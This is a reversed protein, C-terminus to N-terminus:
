AALRRSQGAHHLILETIQQAATGDGYPNSDIQHRAYEAPDSLIRSAAAVIDRQVTGVLEVAGAEVAEPRETTDRMVLVPKGLSPAEEQVGGSDTLILASRDMLWVFEPYIAPECLHINHCDGLLRFVPDRVQPNLHVPYLFQHDPFAQGLQLIAQCIAEFGGGFNERRHGTILVLPADALVAHKEEWRASNEREREVAWMLADIVTNGTIHVKSLDVGENFLNQASRRTPACHIETVISAVRRNFEEPWPSYIDGTRLGAEVHVFPLKHYFAVTSAAFVSTTDGQAVVYDPERERVVEDLAEICRATLGALSQNPRMLSLDVDPQLQFYEAVQDVMERHQGTFCVIPEANVTPRQLQQIVPAMKIAEPRTGVILLPRASPM